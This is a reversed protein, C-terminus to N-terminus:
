EEWIKSPPEAQPLRPRMEVFSHDSAGRLLGTDHWYESIRNFEPHDRIAHNEEFTGTVGTIAIKLWPEM